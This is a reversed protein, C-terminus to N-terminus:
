HFSNFKEKRFTFRQVIQLFNVIRLIFFLFSLGSSSNTQILSNILSCKNLLANYLEPAFLNSADEVDCKYFNSIPQPSGADMLHEVNQQNLINELEYSNTLAYAQTTKSTKKGNWLFLQVMNMESFEFTPEFFETVLGRPSLNQTATQCVEFLSEESKQKSSNEIEDLLEDKRKLVLVIYSSKNSFSSFKEFNLSKVNSDQCEWIKINKHYKIQNETSKIKKLENISIPSTDVSLHQGM